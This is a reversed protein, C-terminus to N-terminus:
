IFINLKLLLQNTQVELIFDFVNM